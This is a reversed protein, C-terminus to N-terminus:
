LVVYGGGGWGEETKKKKEKKRKRKRERRGERKNKNKGRRQGQKKGMNNRGGEKYGARKRGKKGGGEIIQYTGNSTVQITLLNGCGGLPGVWGNEGKTTWTQCSM